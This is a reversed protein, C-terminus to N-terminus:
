GLLTKKVLGRIPFPIHKLAADFAEALDQAQKRRAGRIIETLRAQEEPTLAGVSPPPTAGLRRILEPDPASNM